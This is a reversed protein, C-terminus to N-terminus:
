RAGRLWLVVAAENNLDAHLRDIALQDHIPTESMRLAEEVWMDWEVDARTPEDWDAAQEALAASRDRMMRGVVLAFPISALWWAGLVIFIAALIAPYASV